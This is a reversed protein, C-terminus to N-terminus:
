SGHQASEGLISPDSHLTRFFHPRSYFSIAFSELIRTDHIWIQKKPAPTSIINFICAETVWHCKIVGWVLGKNRLKLVVSRQSQTIGQQPCQVTCYPINLLMGLRKVLHWYCGEGLRLWIGRSLCFRGWKLVGAESGCLNVWCEKKTFQGRSSIRIGPISKWM